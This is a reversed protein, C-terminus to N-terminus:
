PGTRHLVLCRPIGGSNPKGFGGPCPGIGQMVIMVATHKDNNQVAVWAMLVDSGGGPPSELAAPLLNDLTSQDTPVGQLAGLNSSNYDFEWYSGAIPCSGDGGAKSMACSTALATLDPADSLPGLGDKARMRSVASNWEVTRDIVQLKPPKPPTETVAYSHPDVAFHDAWGNAAHLYITGAGLLISATVAVIVGWKGAAATSPTSRASGLAWLVVFVIVAAVALVLAWTILATVWANIVTTGSGSEAAVWGPSAFPM